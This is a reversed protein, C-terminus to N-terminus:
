PLLGVLFAHLSAGKLGSKPYNMKPIQIPKTKSWKITDELAVVEKIHEKLNVTIKKTPNRTM